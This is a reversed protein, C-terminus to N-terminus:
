GIRSSDEPNKSFRSLRVRVRVMCGVIYSDQLIQPLLKSSDAPSLRTEFFRRSFPSDRLIRVRVMVRCGVRARVRMRCGVRVRVRVRVSRGGAWGARDSSNSQECDLSIVFEVPRLRLM